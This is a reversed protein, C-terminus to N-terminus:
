SFRCWRGVQRAAAGSFYGTADSGYLHFLSMSDQAVLWEVELNPCLINRCEIYRGVGDCGWGIRETM